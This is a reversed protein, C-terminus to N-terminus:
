PQQPPSPARTSVWYVPEGAIKQPGTVVYGRRTLADYVRRADPVVYGDSRIVRVGAERARRILEEYLAIGHGQNPEAVFQSGVQWTDKDLQRYVIEGTDDSFALRRAGRHRPIETPIETDVFSREPSLRGAPPQAPRRVGDPGTIYGHPASEPPQVRAHRGEFIVGEDYASGPPADSIYMGVYGDERLRQTFAGVEGRGALEDWQSQRMPYMPGDPAIRSIHPNAYHSIGDGNNNLGRINRDGRAVYVGPGLFGDKSARM